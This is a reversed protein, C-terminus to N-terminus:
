SSGFPRAPHHARTRLRRPEEAHRTGCQNRFAILCRRSRRCSSRRRHSRHSGEEVPGPGRVRRGRKRAVMRACRRRPHRHGPFMGSHRVCAAQTAIRCSGRCADRRASRRCDATRRPRGAPVRGRCGAVATGADCCAGSDSFFASRLRRRHMSPCAKSAGTRVACARARILDAKGGRTGHQGFLSWRNRRRRSLPSWATIWMNTMLRDVDPTSLTAPSAERRATLDGATRRGSTDRIPSGVRAIGRPRWAASRGARRTNSCM